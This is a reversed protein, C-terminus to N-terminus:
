GSTRAFGDTRESRTNATGNRDVVLVQPVAFRSMVSIGLYGLVTERSAVGVPFTVNNATVFDGAWPPTVRSMTM